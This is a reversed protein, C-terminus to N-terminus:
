YVYDKRSKGIYQIKHIENNLKQDDGTHRGRNKKNKYLRNEARLESLVHM